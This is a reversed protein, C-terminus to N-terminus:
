ATTKNHENHHSIEMEEQRVSRGKFAITVGTTKCVVPEVIYSLEIFTGQRNEAIISEPRRTKVARQFNLMAKDRLERPVMEFANSGEIEYPQFGLLEISADSSYIIVGQASM